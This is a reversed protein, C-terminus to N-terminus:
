AFNYTGTYKVKNIIIPINLKIETDCYNIVAPEYEILQM